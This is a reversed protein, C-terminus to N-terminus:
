STVRRRRSSRGVLLAGSVVLTLAFWVFAMSDSGTRPLSESGVASQAPPQSVVTAGQVGLQTTTTLRPAQGGLSTTTTGETTSTTVETTSTTAETTSTTAETTTTPAETTTTSAETTTTEAPVTTTTPAQTTTTPAETTTTPAQTTTTPALTTSTPAETTTTPAETTSTSSATTTTPAETTSTTAATTSSTETTSTPSGTTTTESPQTTTTPATTTTSGPLNCGNELIAQGEPTWNKPTVQRTGDDSTPPIIDGWKEHKPIDPFFIPGDHGEHGAFKVSAVDVTIVVYPNTYSDTAHCITIKHDPPKTASAVTAFLGVTLAVVLPIGFVTAARRTGVGLRM